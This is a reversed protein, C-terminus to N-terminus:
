RVRYAFTFTKTVGQYVITLAVTLRKGKAEKPITVMCRGTGRGALRKGAIKASCRYAEPRPVKAAAQGGDPLRLGAPTLTFTKGARPGGSPQTRVLAAQVDPGGAALSYNWLGTDPATDTAHGQVTRTWFYFRSTNGLESRNVSVLVGASNSRVQVTSNPADDWTTGNWRMFAYTDDREDVVFAYDAGATELSGTIPDSDTNILLYTQVDAPSPLNTIRIEFIIQGNPASAVRVGTIDPAGNSDGSPDNYRGVAGASAALLLVATTVVASVALLPKVPKM